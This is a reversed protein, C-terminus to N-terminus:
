FYDPSRSSMNPLAVSTDMRVRQYGDEPYLYDQTIWAPAANLNLVPSAALQDLRLSTRNGIAPGNSRAVISVYVNTINAQNNTQRQPATFPTLAYDFFSSPWYPSDTPAPYPAVLPYATVTIANGTTTGLQDTLPNQGSDSGSTDIPTGANAPGGAPPVGPDRFLYEVQFLEVGEAVPIEDLFDVNGDGNLDTGTDLMLYPDYQITPPGPDVKVPRVHYRYRDLEFVHAIGSTFCDAGPSPTVAVDQRTFPNGLDTTATLAVTLSGAPAVAPAAPTTTNVTMYAFYRGGYCVAELIQGKAFREGGHAMLTINSGTVAQLVWARGVPPQNGTPALWYNPNRAYFVLEDDNTASDRPCPSMEPPCLGAGTPQYWGAFDFALPAPLGYGARGLNETVNLLAARAGTQAERMKQGSRYAQEQSIGAAVVGVLVISSVALAILLELLTVGRQRHRLRRTM